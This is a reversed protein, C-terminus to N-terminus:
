LLGLDHIRFTLVGYIYIYIYIFLFLLFIVVPWSCLLGPPYFVWVNSLLGSINIKEEMTLRSLCLELTVEKTLAETCYLRWNKKFRYLLWLENWISHWQCPGSLSWCAPLAEDQIFTSGPLQLGNNDPRSPLAPSHWLTVRHSSIWPRPLPSRVPAACIVTTFSGSCSKM